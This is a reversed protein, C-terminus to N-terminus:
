LLEDLSIDFRSSSKQTNNTSPLPAVTATPIIAQGEIDFYKLVVAFGEADTLIAMGDQQKEKAEAKMSELSHLITKDDVLIKEADQPNAEVHAKLFEGIVKVYPNNSSDIEANMKIIANQM